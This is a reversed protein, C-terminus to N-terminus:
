SLKITHDGSFLGPTWVLTLGSPKGATAEFVIAKPGFSAGKTVNVAQWTASDDAIFTATHKIGSGDQLVFDFPNANLEQDSQNSFTVNVKVYVNGTDPKIFENGSSVGYQFSNVTVTQDDVTVSM